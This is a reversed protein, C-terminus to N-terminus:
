ATVTAPEALHQLKSDILKEFLEDSVTERNSWAEDDLIDMGEGAKTVLPYAAEMTMGRKAVFLDLARYIFRNSSDKIRTEIYLDVGARVLASVPMDLRASFSDLKNTFEEDARFHVVKSKTTANM